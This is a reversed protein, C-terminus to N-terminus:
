IQTLNGNMFHNAMTTAPRPLLRSKRPILTLILESNELLDREQKKPSIQGCITKGPTNALIESFMKCNKIFCLNMMDEGTM